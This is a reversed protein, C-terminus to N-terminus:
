PNSSCVVRETQVGKDIATLGRPLIELEWMEGCYDDDANIAAAGKVSNKTGPHLLEAEQNEKRREVVLAILL